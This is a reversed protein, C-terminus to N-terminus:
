GVVAEIELSLVREPEQVALVLLHRPLWWFEPERSFRGGMAGKCILLVSGLNMMALSGIVAAALSDEYESLGTPPEFGDRFAVGIVILACVNGFDMNFFGDCATSGGFEVSSYLCLDLEHTPLLEWLGVVAPLALIFVRVSLITRSSASSPSWSSSPSPILITPSSKPREAVPAADGLVQGNVSDLAWAPYGNGFQDKGAREGLLAEKCRGPM